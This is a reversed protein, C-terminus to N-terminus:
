QLIKLLFRRKDGSILLQFLQNETPWFEPGIKRRKHVLTWWIVQVHVPTITTQLVIKRNVIAQQLGSINAILDCLQGFDCRSKSTKPGGITKHYPGGIQKFNCEGGFMHCRKTAIHGSVESILNCFLSRFERVLVVSRGPWIGIGSSRIVASWAHVRQLSHLNTSLSLNGSSTMWWAMYTGSYCCAVAQQQISSHIM